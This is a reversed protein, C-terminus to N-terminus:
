GVGGGLGGADVQLFYLVILLVVSRKETRSLMSWGGRAGERAREREDATYGKMGYHEPHTGDDIDILEGSDGGEDAESKMARELSIDRNRLRMAVPYSSM